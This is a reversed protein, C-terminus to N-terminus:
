QKPWHEAKWRMAMLIRKRPAPHDYFFFEEIPGPDAKRYETLKLHAEAMGDPRQSAHIGFVDAEAESSRIVTNLVPTLLFMFSGFILSLLPLGVPDALDRIQWRSGYRQLAWGSVQKLVVFGLVLIVGFSLLFHYIHNLVYHGLEHGMVAEIEPLSTRRLLNDNLRVAATGFIGSVNASVRNSQKSANFEYVNDTPVGSARAMSLIPQKITEERLPTYTNFLPDIYTPGILMMVAMFGVSVVSGWVWWTAPARRLVQYLISIFLTGLVLGILSGLLAEGLWPGFSQNALGYLHERYFSRYVELPAGLLTNLFLFAAIVLANSAWRAKIRAELADRWRALVGSALLLWATLVSTVFSIGQLWYGGEFYADSRAKAAAPIRALYAHTAAEPDRPLAARWQETVPTIEAAQRAKANEGLPALAAIGGALLLLCLTIIWFWSKQM